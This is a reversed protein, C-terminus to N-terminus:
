SEPLRADLILADALLIHPTFFILQVEHKEVYVPMETNPFKNHIQCSM